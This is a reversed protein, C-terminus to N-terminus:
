FKHARKQQVESVSVSVIELTLHAAQVHSVVLIAEQALGLVLIVHQQVHVGRAGFQGSEKLQLSCSLVLRAIVHNRIDTM